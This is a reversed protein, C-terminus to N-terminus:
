FNSTPLQFNSKTLKTWQNLFLSTSRPVSFAGPVFNAVVLNFDLKCSGVELKRNRFVSPWTKEFGSYLKITWFCLWLVFRGIAATEFSFLINRFYMLFCAHPPLLLSFLFLVTNQSETHEQETTCFTRVAKSRLEAPRSLGSPSGPQNKFM